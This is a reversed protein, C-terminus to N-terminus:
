TVSDIRSPSCYNKVASRIGYSMSSPTNFSWVRWKKHDWCPGSSLKECGAGLCQWQNSLHSCLEADCPSNMFKTGGEQQFLFLATVHYVQQESHIDKNFLLDLKCSPSSLAHYISSSQTKIGKIMHVSTRMWGYIRELVKNSGTNMDVITSIRTDTMPHPPKLM